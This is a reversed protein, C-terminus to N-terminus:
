KEAENILSTGYGKNRDKKSYVTLCHIFMFNVANLPRWAYDAPVYEIFGKMKDNDDKLIKMRLGEGYRKEFWKRKNEFGPNTIDKVCYLTEEKVNEPTVEIIKM